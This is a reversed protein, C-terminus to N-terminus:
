GDAAKDLMWLSKEANVYQVPYIKKVPKHFVASVVKSKEKGSVLFVIQRAKNILPFTFTIRWSQKDAIWVPKVLRRNEILVPTHPFLSATHGDDGTGLLLWDFAPLKNAFFKRITAEYQRANQGPDGTVPVPFINKPPIDIKDLLSKKAMNYNSDPSSHSVFREDSWFLFVKKWPINKSFETSSLIEYFRKPTTGGSLAVSFKGQKAIVRHCDAVFFHAAALSMAEHDKWTTKDPITKM